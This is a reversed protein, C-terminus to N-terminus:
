WGSRKDRRGETLDIKTALKWSPWSDAREQFESSMPPIVNCSESPSAAQYIAVYRTVGAEAGSSAFDDFYRTPTTGLMRRFMVIFASVSEYGLDGAIRNVLDGSALRQLALGVHLQQKWRRFSMGTERQFLRTLTRDSAGVRAGWEKITLRTSPDEIMAETLRLMRRDRPMPLHIPELPAAFLEDLLVATARTEREADMQSGRRDAIFRFILERLLPKVFVIGCQDNLPATLEPDLYLNAIEMKGATWGSHPMGSPIWLACRPPVTWIGGNAQITLVGSIVYMLQTKLHSHPGTEGVFEASSLTAAVPRQIKDVDRFDRTDNGQM